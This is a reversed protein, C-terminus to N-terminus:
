HKRWLLPRLLYYGTLAGLGVGISNAIFDAWDGSRNETCYAQLLEIGGSTAIPAIIGGWIIHKWNLTTHNRLYELWLILCLGGYMCLHAVKDIHPIENIDTKPPTFLSLYFITVVIVLSLPYKRFYYLM